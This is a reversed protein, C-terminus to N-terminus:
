VEHLDDMVAKWRDPDSEYPAYFSLRQVIDGYRAKIGAALKEPEAVVAFADLIDDTILEGMEQWKGEKSMRNLDEQLGGWGHLELV